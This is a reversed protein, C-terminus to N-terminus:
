LTICVSDFDSGMGVALNYGGVNHWVIYPKRYKNM